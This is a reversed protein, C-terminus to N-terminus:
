HENEVKLIIIVVEAAHYNLFIIAQFICKNYRIAPVELIDWEVSAYFESLDVGIDVTNTGQVEDIHRLDVKFIKKKFNNVLQEVIKKYTLSNLIVHIPYKTLNVFQLDILNLLNGFSIGVNRNCGYM